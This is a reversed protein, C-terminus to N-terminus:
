PYFTHTHVLQAIFDPTIRKLNRRWECIAIYGPLYTKHIGKFRRLFCRVDTWLGEITNSHTECIGDGDTDRAWEKEGHKVTRHVRERPRYSEYEDTYVTTGPLTFQEVHGTLVAQTTNAVVRLRVQGSSRGVTGVIPPRDNAFTGRGRRKNARCRPPDAPDFHESGKKGRM